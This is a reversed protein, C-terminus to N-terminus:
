KEKEKLDEKTINHFSLFDHECVGDCDKCVGEEKVWKIAEEKIHFKILNENKAFSEIDKLTKLEEKEM